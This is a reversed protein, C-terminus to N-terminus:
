LFKIEKFAFRLISGNEKKIVLRGEDEVDIIQANFKGDTTEYTEMEYFRHLSKLYDNNILNFNQAKIQLYRKELQRCLRVRCEDISYTKGTVMKMSVPNPIDKPFIQQNINLGIGCVSQLVISGRLSNEILVGCIKKDDVYIDNPWKIKAHIGEEALFDKIALAIAKSILYIKKLPLFDPHFVVSMLLNSGPESFWRTGGLGQGAVQYDATVITGEPPSEKQILENLFRNTSETEDLKVLRRGTFLTTLEKEMPPAVVTSWDLIRYRIYTM